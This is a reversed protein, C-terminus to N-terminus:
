LSQIDFYQIKNQICAKSKNEIFTLHSDVQTMIELQNILNYISIDQSQHFINSHGM